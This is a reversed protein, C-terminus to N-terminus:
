RFKDDSDQLWLSSPMCKGQASDILCFYQAPKEFDAGIHMSYPSYGIMSGNVIARGFDRLTHHHGIFHWDSVRVQNWAAVKKLLPIGLGGVGGQYRVDHGHHFHLTFDYVEVYQHESKDVIFLVRGAAIEDKLRDELGLYLLLDFSNSASTAVRMKDTTRGHNGFSCVIRIQELGLEKLLTRIGGELRPLLWRVAETPSLTNNEAMEEHIYGTYLDGGLWLLLHRISLHRSARHHNVHWIIGQFYREVRRDAIQLNYENRNAVTEPLVPEEVHWDTALALACVDRLGSSKEVRVLRPTERVRSIVDWLRNRAESEELRGVLDKVEARARNAASQEQVRYVPDVPVPITDRPPAPITDRSPDRAPPISARLLSPDNQPLFTSPPPLGKRRFAHSVETKQFTSGWRENLRNLAAVVTPGRKVERIAIQIREDTWRVAPRQPRRM